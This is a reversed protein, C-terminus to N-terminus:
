ADAAVTATTKQTVSAFVVVFWSSLFLFVLLCGFSLLFEGVGLHLLFTLGSFAFM